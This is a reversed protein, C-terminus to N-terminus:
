RFSGTAVDAGDLTASVRASMERTNWEYQGSAHLDVPRSIPANEAGVGLADISAFLTPKALTGKVSGNASVTGSLSPPRLIEPFDTIKRSPVTVILNLPTDVLAA